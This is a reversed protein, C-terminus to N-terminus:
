LRVATAMAHSYVANQVTQPDLILVDIPQDGLRMQLRATLIAAKNVKDDLIESSKILLDIDGGKAHDDLRSGFLCVTVGEGFVEPVTAKITAIQKQTLRM